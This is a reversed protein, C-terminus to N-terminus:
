RKWVLRTRRSGLACSIARMLSHAQTNRHSRVDEFEEDKGKPKSTAKTVGDGIQNAAGGVANGIKKFM